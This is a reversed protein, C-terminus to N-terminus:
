PAQSSLGTSSPKEKKPSDPLAQAKGEEPMLKEIEREVVDLFSGYNAEFGFSLWLALDGYDGAFHSDFFDKLKPEKAGYEGGTVRTKNAFTDCLWDYDAETISDTFGSLLKGIVAADLKQGAEVAGGVTVGLIKAIRVLVKGGEKAGFQEVKYTYDGIQREKVEIGM